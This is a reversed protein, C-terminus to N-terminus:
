KILNLITNLCLVYDKLQKEKKVGVFYSIIRKRKWSQEDGLELNGWGERDEKREWLNQKGLGLINAVRELEM